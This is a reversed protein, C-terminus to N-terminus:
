AKSIIEKASYRFSKPAPVTDRFNGVAIFMIFNDHEPTKLLRRMNKAQKVKFMANLACAALGQYELALLVSMGFLGGDIYPQNKESIAVYHQTDTYLALLVPPTDYGTMGGQIKLAREIVSKDTIIQVRSTQRNCISPTKMAIELADHIKALSVPKESFERVSYRGNFLEKFNKNRNNRKSAASIQVVGGLEAKSKNAIKLIEGYMDNLYTTNYGKVKHVTVYERLVTLANQYAKSSTDYSSAKYQHMAKAMKSLAEKGFGLRINVHSLGKELSHAHFILRADLQYQNLRSFPNSYYRKFRREDVGFLRYSAFWVRLAQLKELLVIPLVRKTAMKLRNLM